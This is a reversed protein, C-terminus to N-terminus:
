MNRTNSGIQTPKLLSTIIFYIIMMFYIIAFTPTERLGGPHLHSTKHFIDCTTQHNIEPGEEEGMREKFLM